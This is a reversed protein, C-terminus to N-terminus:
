DHPPPTVPRAASTSGTREPATASRATMKSSQSFLPLHTYTRSSVYPPLPPPQILTPLSTRLFAVPSEDDARKRKVRILQPPISM